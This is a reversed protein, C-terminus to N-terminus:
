ADLIQLTKTAEEGVQGGEDALQKLVTIVDPETRKWRRMKQRFCEVLRRRTHGEYGRDRLLELILPIDEARFHFGIANALAFRYSEWNAVTIQELEERSLLDGVGASVLEVAQEQEAASSDRTRRFEDVLRDFAVRGERVTLARVIGERVTFHYRRDLHKSLIPIAEQYAPIPVDTRWPEQRNFLEWVSKVDFGAARLDELLPAQDQRLVELRAQRKRDEVKLKEQAALWEPDSKREEAWEAMTMGHRRKKKTM